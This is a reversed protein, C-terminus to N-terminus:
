YCGYSNCTTSWSSGDARTGDHYVTNGITTSEQSWRSGTSSNYGELYTTNGIKSIDYTNGSNYDYCTYYSSSGYCDSNASSITSISSLIVGTLLIPLVKKFLKKMFFETM